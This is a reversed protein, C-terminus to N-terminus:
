PCVISLKSCMGNRPDKVRMCPALSPSRLISLFSDKGITVVELTGAVCAGQDVWSCGGKWGGLAAKAM